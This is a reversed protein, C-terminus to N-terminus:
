CNGQPGDPMGKITYCNGCIIFHTNCNEDTSYMSWCPTEKGGILTALAKRVKPIINGAYLSTGIGAFLICAFAIMAIKKKM